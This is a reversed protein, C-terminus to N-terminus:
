QMRAASMTCLMSDQPLPHGNHFVLNYDSRHCELPVQPCHAGPRGVPQQVFVCKPLLRQRAHSARRAAASHASGEVVASRALGPAECSGRLESDVRCGHHELLGNRDDLRPLGGPVRRWRCVHQKGGPQRPRFTSAALWVPARALVNGSIEVGSAAWDAYISWAFYPSKWRGAAADYGFGITDHIFNHRIVVGQWSLWDISGGGITGTDEGELCTHRIRNFEISHKAGWMFIGSQPVDHILNHAARNGAGTIEIGKAHRGVLGVHHIYNNDASNDALSLSTLDGGGLEIGHRARCRPYRERGDCQTSRGECDRWEWRSRRCQPDHERCDHLGRLRGAHHRDWQLVRFYIRRLTIQECKHLSVLADTTAVHVVLNELPAPPWFYLTQTHRDFFWEGQQDLEELLNRVFYRDGPRIEYECGPALRLLRSAREFAVIPVVYHWWNFRPFVSVEGEEPRSWSRLDQPRMALTQTLEPVNRQWFDRQSHARHYEDHGPRIRMCTSGNGMSM